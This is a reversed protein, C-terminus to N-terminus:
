RGKMEWKEAVLCSNNKSKRTIYELRMRKNQYYQISPTIDLPEPKQANNSIGPLFKIKEIIKNMNLKINPEQAKKLNKSESTITNGM